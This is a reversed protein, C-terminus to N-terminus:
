SANQPKNHYESELVTSSRVTRLAMQSRPTLVSSGFNASIVNKSSAAQLLVPLLTCIPKVHVVTSMKRVDGSDRTISYLKKLKNRSASSGKVRM